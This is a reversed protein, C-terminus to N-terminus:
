GKDKYAKSGFQNGSNKPINGPDQVPTSKDSDVPISDETEISSAKRKKSPDSEADRLERVTQRQARSMSYWEKNTYQRAELVGNFPKKGKSDNASNPGSGSQSNDGVSTAAVQRSNKGQKDRLVAVQLSTNFYRQTEEFDKLYKSDKILVQSIAHFLRPDGIGACFKKM